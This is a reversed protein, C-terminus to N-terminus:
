KGCDERSVGLGHAQQNTWDGMGTPRLWAVARGIPSLSIPANPLQFGDPVIALKATKQLQRAQFPNRLLASCHGGEGRRSTPIAAITRAPARFIPWTGLSQRLFRRRGCLKFRRRRSGRRSRGLLCRSRRRCRGKDPSAWRRLNDACARRTLGVMDLRTSPLFVSRGGRHERACARRLFM